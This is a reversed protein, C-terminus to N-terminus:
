FHRSSRRAGQAEFETVLVPKEYRTGLDAIYKKWYATDTASGYVHAAVADVTCGLKDCAALFQDLWGTGMAPAAGNTIAPSVLTARGAFPQMHQMWLQAADTPAINSQEKLDPENFGLLHTAGNRLAAEANRQWDSTSATGWLMPFFTVGSPLEGGPASAWNYAWSVQGSNFGKALKADNFSLGRKIGS